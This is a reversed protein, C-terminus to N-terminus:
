QAGAVGLVLGRWARGMKHRQRESAAAGKCIWFLTPSAPTGRNGQRRAELQTRQSYTRGEQAERGSM